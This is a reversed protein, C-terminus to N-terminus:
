CCGCKSEVYKFLKPAVDYVADIIEVASVVYKQYNEQSMTGKGVVRVLAIVLAKKTQGDVNFDKLAKMASTMKAVVTDGKDAEHLVTQLNTGGIKIMVDLLADLEKQLYTYDDVNMRSELVERVVTRIVDAPDPEGMKDLYAIAKAIHEYVNGEGNFIDIIVNVDAKSKLEVLSM